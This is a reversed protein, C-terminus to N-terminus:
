WPPMAQRKVADAVKVADTAHPVSHMRVIHAGSSVCLAAAAASATDRQSAEKQGAFGLGFRTSTCAQQCISRETERDPLSAPGSVSKAGCPNHSAVVWVM